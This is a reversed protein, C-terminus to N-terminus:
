KRNGERLWLWGVFAGEVILVMIILPHLKTRAYEPGTMFGEFPLGVSFGILV